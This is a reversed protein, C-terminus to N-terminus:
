SSGYPIAMETPWFCRPVPLKMHNLRISRSHTKLELTLTQDTQAQVTGWQFLFSFAHARSDPFGSKLVTMLMKSAAFEKVECPKQERQLRKVLYNRSLRSFFHIHFHCIVMCSPSGRHTHPHTHTCMNKKRKLATGVVSPSEWALPWILATAASRYWLWLLATNSVHGPGVGCSM